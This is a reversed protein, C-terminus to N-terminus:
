LYHVLTKINGFLFFLYQGFTLSNPIRVNDFIKVFDYIEKEEMKSKAPSSSNTAGFDIM